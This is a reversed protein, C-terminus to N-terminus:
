ENPDFLFDEVVNAFPPPDYQFRSDPINQNTKMNAFDMVMRELLLPFVFLTLGTNQPM